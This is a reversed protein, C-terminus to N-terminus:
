KKQLEAIRKRLAVLAEPADEIGNVSLELPCRGDRKRNLILPVLKTYSTTIGNDHLFTEADESMLEGHVHKAKGCIAISAAARGIVKDVVTAGEMADKHKDFMVLLPSVGHGREVVSITDDKVLVCEAQGDQIMKKAEELGSQAMMEAGSFLLIASM